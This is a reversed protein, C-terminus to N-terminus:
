AKKNKSFFPLLPKGKKRRRYLVFAIILIIVILIVTNIPSSRPAPQEERGFDPSIKLPISKQLTHRDGFSDTYSIEVILDRTEQGSVPPTPLLQFIALTFDGTNLNGIIVSSGGQVVFGEQEPLSVTVSTADNEGINAISLSTKGSSSESFAIDFDTGGGVLIGAKTKIEEKAPSGSENKIDFVLKLDLTYLGREATPNAIVTYKLDISDGVGLFSIYRTNDTSVPLVVDDEETWSFVMNTLPAKGINNITFTLDTEKGPTIRTKDIYIIQAFEKTTVDISFEQGIWTNGGDLSYRFKLDSKGEPADPHVLIRYLLIKTAAEAPSLPLIEIIQVTEEGPVLSFPFQPQLEAIIDTLTKQGSNELSIRIEVVGGARAPDPFQNVLAADLQYDSPIVVQALAVPALSIMVMVIAVEHVRM